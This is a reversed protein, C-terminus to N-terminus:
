AFTFLDSANRRLTSQLVIGANRYYNILELYIALTDDTYKSSEMEIWTFLGLDKAKGIIVKLNKLCLDYGISLGIQSPKISICGEIEDCHLSELLTSYEKVTRSIRGEDISDEGLYNLIAKQGKINCDQAALLADEINSGASWKKAVRLLLQELFAYDHIHHRYAIGM